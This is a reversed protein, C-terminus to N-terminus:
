LMMSDVSMLKLLSWTYHLDPFRPHQLGHPRLSDSMVSQVVIAYISVVATWQYGCSIAELIWQLFWFGCINWDWLQGKMNMGM